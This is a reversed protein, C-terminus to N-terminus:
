PATAAAQQSTLLGQFFPGLSDQIVRAVIQLLLNMDDLDAFMPRKAQANWISAYNESERRTVVSLCLNLVYDSDEDPMKSFSEAVPQLLHALGDLDRGLGGPKTAEIFVPVLPTLLPALRKSVNFQMLAPLKQARYTKGALEFEIM